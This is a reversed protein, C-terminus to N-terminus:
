FFHNSEFNCACDVDSAESGDSSVEGDDEADLFEIEAKKSSCQFQLTEKLIQLGEEAINGKRPQIFMKDLVISEALLFKIFELEPKVEETHLIKMKVVRLRKLANDLLDQVELIELALLPLEIEDMYSVFGIELIELNPSSVILCLLFSVEETFRFNLKPLELVRLFSLTTSLKRPMTGEVMYDIFDSGLRLHEILPLSEFFKIREESTEHRSFDGDFIVTSLHQCTKRFCISKFCGYFQFFKLQPLDIDLSDMRSTCYKISLTELLPCKSMFSEFVNAKFRVLHFTLSILKPFGQFALPVELLCSSLTLRRLTVCSFLFSSLTYSGYSSTGIHFYFEHVDKKSLCHMLHDIQPYSKVLPVHFTFNIIPGRHLLLVKYINLFLESINPKAASYRVSREYFAYDFVLKPLYRWNFRWKKSLISTKVAEHIPLFILINDIINSPLNSIVDSSSSNEIKKAPQNDM